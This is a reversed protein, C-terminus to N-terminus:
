STAVACWLGQCVPVPTAHCLQGQVIPGKGVEPYTIPRTVQPILVNKDAQKTPAATVSPHLTIPIPHPHLVTNLSQSM